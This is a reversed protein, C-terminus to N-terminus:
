TILDRKWEIKLVYKYQIKSAYCSFLVSFYINDFKKTLHTLFINSIGKIDIAKSYHKLNRMNTYTYKIYKKNNLERRYMEMPFHADLMKIFYNIMTSQQKNIFDNDNSLSYNDVSQNNGM